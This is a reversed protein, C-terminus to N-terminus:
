LGFCIGWDIMRPMERSKDAEISQAEQSEPRKFSLMLGVFLFLFM